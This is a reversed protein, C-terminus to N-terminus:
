LLLVLQATLHFLPLVTGMISSKSFCDLGCRDCLKYTCPCEGYETYTLEEACVYDGELGDESTVALLFVTLEFCM